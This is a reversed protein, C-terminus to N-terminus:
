FRLCWQTQGQNPNSSMIKENRDYHIDKKTSIVTTKETDLCYCYNAASLRYTPHKIFSILTVSNVSVGLYNSYQYPLVLLESSFFCSYNIM